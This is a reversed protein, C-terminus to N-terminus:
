KREHYESRRGPSRSSRRSRHRETRSDSRSWEQTSDRKNSAATSDFHHRDRRERNEGRDESRSRSRRRKSEPSRSRERSHQRRRRDDSVGGRHREKQDRSSSRDRRRSSSGNNTSHRYDRDQTNSRNERDERSARHDRRSGSDKSRKQDRESERDEHDKDSRSRKSKKKDTRDRRDRDRDQDWDGPQHVEKSYESSPAVGSSSSVQASSSSRPPIVPILPIGINGPKAPRPAVEIMNSGTAGFRTSKKFGLGRIATSGDAQDPSDRADTAKGIAMKLEKDSVNATTKKKSKYGLAAAMAEAEADKIAQLEAQRQDMVRDGEDDDAKGSKAYWTLDRGKQWKGVPALVSNGLYYERHKDEKVQDWSFQDRGGRVGGRSPHFM